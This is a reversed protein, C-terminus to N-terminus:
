PALMVKIASREDMARYGAAAEELPLTQTFVNGPEFGGAYIRDVLDPLYRRVPAPGGHLHILSAFLQEGTIEVGHSIGLFGVKGGRRTSAIAQQMAENTGVAEVASHAGYGNTMEIVQSVFDDGRQELVDTAGFSRALEQRDAHRSSIIIREAGLERSALVASLGVAGDGIIAVTKGPGVGASDAGFWGTGLVDSAALLHRLQDDTPVAPLKVLTGDAWPIRSFEAQTGVGGLMERNICGSFDGAQCIECVGCSAVFSGVVWDGPQVTSVDSGIETVVGVYEHGMRSGPEIFTEGRYRWLDSGCVCAAKVEIVADTPHEISDAAVEEVRIDGPGHIIVARM